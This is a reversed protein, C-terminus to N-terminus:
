PRRWHATQTPTDVDLTVGHRRSQDVLRHLILEAEAGEALYPAGRPAEGVKVTSLVLPRFTAGVLQGNLFEATVVASASDPNGTSRNQKSPKGGRLDPGRRAQSCVSTVSGRPDGPLWSNVTSIVVHRWRMGARPM